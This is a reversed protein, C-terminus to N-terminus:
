LYLFPLYKNGVYKRSICPFVDIYCFSWFGLTVSAALFFALSFGFVCRIGGNKM